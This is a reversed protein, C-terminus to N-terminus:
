TSTTVGQSVKVFYGSHLSVTGLFLRGKELPDKTPLNNLFIEGGLDVHIFTDESVFGEYEIGETLDQSVETYSDSLPIKSDRTNTYTQKTDIKYVSFYEDDNLYIRAEHRTVTYANYLKEWSFIGIQEQRGTYWKYLFSKTYFSHKYKTFEIDNWKGNVTYTKNRSIRGDFQWAFNYASLTEDPYASFQDIQTTKIQLVGADVTGAFHGNNFDAFGKSDIAWGETGPSFIGTDDIVGNYQSSKIIGGEAMTIQNTFLNNIFATNAVLNKVWINMAKVIETSGELGASMADNIAQNYRPDTAYDPSYKWGFELKEWIYGDFSNLFFDGTVVDTFEHEYFRGVDPLYTGANFIGLYGPGHEGQKGDYVIPVTDSDYLQMLDSYYSFKIQRAGEPIVLANAYYLIDKLVDYSEPSVDIGKYSAFSDFYTLDHIAGDTIM